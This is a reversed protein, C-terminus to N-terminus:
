GTPPEIVTMHKESYADLSYLLGMPTRRAPLVVTIVRLSKGNALQRTGCRSICIYHLCVGVV